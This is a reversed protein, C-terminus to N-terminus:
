PRAALPLYLKAAPAGTSGTLVAVPTWGPDVGLQGSANYGWCKVGGGTTVACTHTQRATVAAAGGALGQVAVPTSTSGTTGDGLQGDGNAGWCWVGGDSTVVCTHGAGAALATASGPLGDPGYREPWCKVGGATTLACNHASGSTIAKIDSGLGAVGVPTWRDLTTLDGLQGEANRGWCLAAGSTTLACTHYFGAAIALVGRALGSVDVPVPSDATTGNGLQGHQNRGWCKVGGGAGPEGATLACTHWYGAAVAAMGEGLGAVDAPTPQAQLTGTGLQGFQNNGWCKVGGGTTLACAHSLGGALAQVDQTLGAV